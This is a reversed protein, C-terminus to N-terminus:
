IGSGLIGKEVRIYRVRSSMRKLVCTKCAPRQALENKSGNNTNLILFFQYIRDGKQLESRLLWGQHTHEPM